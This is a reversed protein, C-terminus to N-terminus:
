GVIDRRAVELKFTETAFDKTTGGAPILEVEGSVKLVPDFKVSVVFWEKTEEDQYIGLAEGTYNPKSKEMVSVLKSVTPEVYNKSM